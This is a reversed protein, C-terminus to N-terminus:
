PFGAARASRARWALLLVRRTDKTIRAPHSPRVGVVWVVSDGSAVLPHKSRERAGIRQSKLFSGLARPEGGLPHFRDGSRPARVFLPRGVRDFDFAEEFRSKTALFADLDFHDRPIVLASIDAELSELATDGPMSLEVARFVARHASSPKELIVRDRVRRLTVGASLVVPRRVGSRLAAEVAELDSWRLAPLRADLRGVAACLLYFLRIAHLDALPGVSLSLASGSRALELDRLLAGADDRLFADVARSRGALRALGSVVDPNFESALLPLLVHRIRNRTFDVSLNSPDERWAVGSARLFARLSERTCRLFPRLLAIPPRGRLLRLLPMGGLGAVISGRLLNHLVTEAQDDATHAVLVADAGVKAARAALLRYRVMRAREELSGRASRVLRIRAGHFPVGLGRAAEGVFRAEEAAEPRLGHDITMVEFPGSIRLIRRVHCAAVLLAMSDSGGSVALLLGADARALGAEILSKRFAAIVPHTRM